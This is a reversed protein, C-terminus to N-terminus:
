PEPFRRLLEEWSSCRVILGLSRESLGALDRNWPRDILAVPVRCSEALHIAMDLSDEVALSFDFRELADLTLPVVTSRDQDGRGYKDVSALHAHSMGHAELWRRSTAESAPPRGTMVFVEHGHATWRELAAAAGPSPELAGLEEPRHASCMFADLEAPALRFSRGLDFDRIDEEHVRRGHERELLAILGRITQSLVDDLDVYVRAM